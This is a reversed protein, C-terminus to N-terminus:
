KNVEYREVAEKYGALIWTRFKEGEQITIDHFLGAGEDTMDPRVFISVMDIEPYEECVTCIMKLPIELAARIENATEQTM